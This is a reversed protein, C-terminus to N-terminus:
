GIADAFDSCARVGLTSPLWKNLTQTNRRWDSICLSGLNYISKAFDMSHMLLLSIVSFM